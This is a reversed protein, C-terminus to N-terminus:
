KKAKKYGKELLKKFTSDIYPESYGAERAISVGKNYSSVAKEREGTLDYCLGLNRYLFVAVFSRSDEQIEEMRDKIANLRQIASEYNSKLFDVWALEFQLHVSDPKQSKWEDLLKVAKAINDEPVLEPKADMYLGHLLSVLANSYLVDAMESPSGLYYGRALKSELFEAINADLTVSKSIPLIEEFKVLRTGTMKALARDFYHKHECGTLIVVLKGRNEALARNILEMMKGNRTLYSLNMPGDGFVEVNIKYMQEIYRNYEEGNFFEYGSKNTKWITNMDGYKKIFDQMIKNAAVLKEWQALKVKYEPTKEFAQRAARDNGSSWWDIPYVNLNRNLGYMSAMMMEYLYSQRRFDKPRIEVCIADPHFKELIKYLDMYSYNPNNEHSGHITGVVLVQTDDIAVASAAFITLLSIIILTGPVSSLCVKGIKSLM